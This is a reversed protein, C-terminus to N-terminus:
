AEYGLPLPRIADSTSNLPMQAPNRFSGNIGLDLVPSLSQKPLIGSSIAVSRFFRRLLALSDLARPAGSTVPKARTGLTVQAASTKKVPRGRRPLGALAPRYYGLQRANHPIAVFPAASEPPPSAPNAIYIPHRFAACGPRSHRASSLRPAPRYAPTRM